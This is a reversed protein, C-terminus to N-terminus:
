TLVVAKNDGRLFTELQEVARGFALRARQRDGSRHAPLVQRCYRRQLGAQVEPPILPLRLSRIEAFSINPTGVGNILSHIQQWGAQTKFFFWVYFPNVGELRLLDVFCAINAAEREWYVGLRNKGLTGAGSRPLLLDGRRTRSRDPDFVGGAEVRIIRSFDIGTEGLDGQRVLPIGGRVPMPKQGTVIPGYTMFAIHDGLPVLDFRHRLREVHRRGSWYRADWRSGHLTRQAVVSCGPPLHRGAGGAHLRVADLSRQAFEDRNKDESRVLLCSRGPEGALRRQLVLVVTRANLGVGRFTPAPLQIVARVRARPLIWDRLDQQRTNSVLGEPLIMLALGGPRLLQLAREVFLTETALRQWDPGGNRALEFREYLVAASSDPAVSGLRGFPPNGLVIDFSEIKIKPWEGCLGDGVAIYPVMTHNPRVLKPDIEIGVVEGIFGASLAAKLLAGEGAAPDIVRGEQGAQPRYALCLDWLWAATWYPTFYQGQTPDGRGGSKKAAKDSDGESGVLHKGEKVAGGVAVIGVGQLYV